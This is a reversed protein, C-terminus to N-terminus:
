RVLTLPLTQTFTGADLRYFYNGPPLGSLDVLVSYKGATLNENVVTLVNGGLINYLSLRCGAADKLSFEIRTSKDAPNPYAAFLRNGDAPDVPLLGIFIDDYKTQAADAAAQITNLNDGAILAFAVEVSDGPALNIGGTSVVSLVDNGTPTTNGADSRSTSLAQYKETDDFGDTLNISGAVLTNDLAYHNFGATHSLVKIGGYLGGADTSWIYGMRRGPDTSCKNNAYAPVDWDAFLGAYLASLPSTGNNKIFYQVMVYNDDPAAIWAYAHQRILLNMPNASTAGLDNFVGSVDFDSITGPEQATVNTVSLFDADNNGSAARTNDSVQSGAAGVMLGMDYLISPSNQYTFGLGQSQGTQNYGILSKSSISTAVNNVAVNIYDVNVTVKFLFIDSWAGDTLYVRFTVESNLPATPRIYVRYPATFNSLTDFTNMVGANFTNQLIQVSSSTTTLSCVLNTTPRLLNEFLCTISLTDGPVFVDDRNDTPHNSKLVVGPSVSDTVGKFLNVRGKGLKGIYAGNGSLNYIYDCTSRLQEGVQYANMSPFRSKILAACGAAIPSAMSTGNETAYADNFLTALINVGPACVDVTANFNSFSAKGDSSSTAGVSIVGEYSSPYHTEDLGDNGAAAVVLVDNNITAYDITEQEFISPLGTRGWSCNIINVGHDTAYIIGDYGNDISNASADRCSKVPLFKCNFAPAAVGIGNNTSAAACGSVHSGHTSAVVMPDNDDESVDWGRYNDIFGDNDNDINDIPDAYNYKINNVLDPHDWDTGSDVIGIVVNTDGQTVDWANYANIKNIQYQSAIQPDSPIFDMQHIYLPEAYVVIGTKLLAQVAAEIKVAPSFQLQYVLSMDVPKRNSKIEGASPMKFHPFKRSLGTAAIRGLAQQFAPISVENANCQSRYAPKIRVVLVGPQYEAGYYLPKTSNAAGPDSAFSVVQAFVLVIVATFIRRM